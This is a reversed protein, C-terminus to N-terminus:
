PDSGLETEAVQRGALDFGRLRIAPQRVDEGPAPGGPWWAAFWGDHVTAVVVPGGAPEVTVSSIGPGMRGVVSLGQVTLGGGTVHGRELVILETPGIPALVEAQHATWGGGAGTVDGDRTIQLAECGVAATPGSLRVVAVGEGRVDIVQTPVIPPGQMDRSCTAAVHNAFAPDLRLPHARWPGLLEPLSAAALPPVILGPEGGDDREADAADDCAAACAIALGLSVAVVIRHM